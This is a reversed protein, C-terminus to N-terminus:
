WGKKHVLFDENGFLNLAYMYAQYFSVFAKELPVGDRIVYYPSVAGQMHLANMKNRKKVQAEWRFEM